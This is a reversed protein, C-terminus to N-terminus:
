EGQLQNSAGGRSEVRDNLKEHFIEEMFEAHKM